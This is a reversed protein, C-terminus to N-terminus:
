CIPTKPLDIGKTGSQQLSQGLSYFIIYYSLITHYSLIVLYYRVIGGITSDQKKLSAFLEVAATCVDEITEPEASLSYENKIFNFVHAVVISQSTISLGSNKEEVFLDDNHECGLIYDKM